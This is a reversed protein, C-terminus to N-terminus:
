KERIKRPVIGVSLITGDTALKVNNRDLIDGRKAKITSIRVKQNEGLQPFIFRSSWKLKYEKDKEEVIVKNDFNVEGAQTYITENYDVQYNGEIRELKTIEVKINQSGIGEYINKNRAIFDEKNITSESIKDYLEDYKKENLLMIFDTLAMKVKEENQKSQIFIVITIVVIILVISIIGILFKKNKM